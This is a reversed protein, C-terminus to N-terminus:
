SFSRLSSLLALAGMRGSRMAADLSGNLLYDGALFIKDSLRHQSAQLVYAPHDLIPLANPIDYRKLFDLQWNSRGTMARLEDAVKEAIDPHDSAHRRLTVSVLSKGAPAYAPSVDSITVWNNILGEPSASLAIVPKNLPSSPSSFYFNTTTQHSVEQGKLNPVLVGPDTAILVRNYPLSSGDDLFVADNTVSSVRCHFRFETKDLAAALQRPIMEMGQKPIAALGESFMKFVFRFMAASTKLERELFIGGFFPVFFREIIAKSFGLSKLYEMTSLQGSSFLFEPSIGKLSRALKWILFKDRLTGVGSFAMSPLLAPNRMPDGIRWRRNNFFILAGPDFECLSLAKMDLYQNVEAYATLLVQFGRDFLFGNEGDTKVRGGPRDTAEIVLPTVGAKELHAAAILGSIGAGIILTREQPVM